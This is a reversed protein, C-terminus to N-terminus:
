LIKLEIILSILVLNMSCHIGKLTYGHINSIQHRCIQNREALTSKSNKIEKIEAELNNKKEELDKINRENEDRRNNLRNIHDMLDEEVSKYQRTMDSIIQM